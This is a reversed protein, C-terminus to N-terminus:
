DFRAFVRFRATDAHGRWGPMEVYGQVRYWGAQDLDGAQVVYSIKTTGELAGPWIVEVGDPKQVHLERVTAAAIDECVDLMIRTGIDGIYVKSEGTCCEAM